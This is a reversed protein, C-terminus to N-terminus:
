SIDPGNRKRTMCAYTAPTWSGNKLDAVKFGGPRIELLATTIIIIIIIIDIDIDIVFMTLFLLVMM